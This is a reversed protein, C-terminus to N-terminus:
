KLDRIIRYTIWEIEKCSWRLNDKKRLILLHIIWDILWPLFTVRYKDFQSWDLTEGRGIAIM